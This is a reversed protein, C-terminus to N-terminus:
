TEEPLVEYSAAAPAGALAIREPWVAARVHPTQRLHEHSPTLRIPEFVAAAFL